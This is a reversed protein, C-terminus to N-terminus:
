VLLDDLSCGNITREGEPEEPYAENEDASEADNEASPSSWYRSTDTDGFSVNGRIQDIEAQYTRVMDNLHEREATSLSANRTVNVISKPDVNWASGNKPNPEDMRRVLAFRKKGKVSVIVGSRIRFFKQKNVTRDKSWYEIKDGASLHHLAYKKPLVLESAPVLKTAVDKPQKSIVKQKPVETARPTSKAMAPKNHVLPTTDLVMQKCGSIVVKIKGDPIKIHKPQDAPISLQEIMDQRDKFILTLTTM